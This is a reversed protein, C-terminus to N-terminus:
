QMELGFRKALEEKFSDGLRLFEKSTTFSYGAQYTDEKVNKAAHTVVDDRKIRRAEYLKGNYAFLIVVLYDFDFDKDRIIGLKTTTTRQQLIRAKVQYKEGNAVFDYAKTSAVPLEGSFFNCSIREAVSGLVNSTNIGFAKRYDAMASMYEKWIKGLSKDSVGRKSLFEKSFGYYDKLGSKYNGTTNVNIATADLGKFLNELQETTNLESPSIVLNLAKAAGKLYSVYSNISGETMSKGNRGVKKRLYEIFEEKYAVAGNDNPEQMQNRQKM